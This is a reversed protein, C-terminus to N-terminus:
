DFLTLRIKNAMAQKGERSPHLGDGGNFGSRYKLPNAPDQTAEEFDVFGDFGNTRAV